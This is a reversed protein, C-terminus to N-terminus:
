IILDRILTANKHSVNKFSQLVKCLRSSKRYGRCPFLVRGVMEVFSDVLVFFGWSVMFAFLVTDKRM